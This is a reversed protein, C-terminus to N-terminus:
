FYQPTEKIGTMFLFFNKRDIKFFCKLLNGCVYTSISEFLVCVCLPLVQEVPANIYM